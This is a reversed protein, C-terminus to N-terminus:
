HRLREEDLKQQENLIRSFLNFLNLRMSLSQKLHRNGVEIRNTTFMCFNTPCRVRKIAQMDACSLSM